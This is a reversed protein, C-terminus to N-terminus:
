KGLRKFRKYVEDDNRKGLITVLVATHSFRYIIRYEGIDARYYEDYGRLKSTDSALPNESLKLIREVVQRRHKPSLKKLFREADKSLNIERM